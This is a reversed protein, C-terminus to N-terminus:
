LVFSCHAPRLDGHASPLSYTSTTQVFIFSFLLACTYCLLIVFCSPSGFVFSSAVICCVCISSCNWVFRFQGCLISRDGKERRWLWHHVSLLPRWLYISSQPVTSTGYEYARLWARKVSSCPSTLATLDVTVLRPDRRDPRWIAGYSWGGARCLAGLAGAM